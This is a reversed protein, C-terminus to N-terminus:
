VTSARLCCHPSFRYTISAGGSITLSYGLISCSRPKNTGDASRRVVLSRLWGRWDCFAVILFPLFPATVWKFAISIGVLFASLMFRGRECSFWAVVLPLVMWADFHGGASSTLIVLPNWAYLAARKNGFHCNLLRHLFM